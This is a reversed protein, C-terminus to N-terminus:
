PQMWGHKILLDDTWGAAIAQDYTAGNAAPLMLKSPGIKNPSLIQSYPPPLIKNETVPVTSPNFGSSFPIDSAEEPMLGSFGISKPDLSRVIPKGYGVFAVHSFNLFVGPKDPSRNSNANIYVEIYDGCNIAGEPKGFLGGSSDCIVPSFGNKLNLVWHNKYGDYDCWRLQKENLIDSDGNIIKWAFSPLNAKGNPFFSNGFDWIKKGWSTDKWHSENGKKIAVAIFYYPAPKGSKSILPGGSANKDIQKYLSGMVLRGVPLLFGEKIGM